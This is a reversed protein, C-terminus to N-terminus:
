ILDKRVYKTICPDDGVLGVRFQIREKDKIKNRFNICLEQDYKDSEIFDDPLGQITIQTTHTHVLIVEDVDILNYKSLDVHYEDSKLEIEVSKRTEKYEPIYIVGNFSSEICAEHTFALCPIDERNLFDNFIIPHGSTNQLRTNIYNCNVYIFNLENYPVEISITFSEGNTSIYWDYKSFEVKFGNICEIGTLKDLDNVYGDIKLRRFRFRTMQDSSGGDIRIFDFTNEFITLIM